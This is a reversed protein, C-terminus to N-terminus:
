PSRGMRRKHDEEVLRRIQKRGGGNVRLRRIALTLRVEDLASEVVMYVRLHVLATRTLLIMAVVFQAQPLVESLLSVVDRM